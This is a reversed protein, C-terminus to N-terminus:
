IGTDPIDKRIGQLGEALAIILIVLTVPHRKKKKKEEM